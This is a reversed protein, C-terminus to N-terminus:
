SKTTPRVRKNACRAAERAASLCTPPSVHHVEQSTADKLNISCCPSCLIVVFCFLVCCMLGFCHFLDKTTCPVAGVQQVGSCAFAAVGGPMVFCRIFHGDDGWQWSADAPMLLDFPLSHLVFYALSYEFTDLPLHLVDCVATYLSDPSHLIAFDLSDSVCLYNPGKRCANLEPRNSVCHQAACAESFKRNGVLTDAGPICM